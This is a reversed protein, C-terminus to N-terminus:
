PTYTGNAYRMTSDAGCILPVRNADTVVTGHPYRIRVADDFPDSALYNCPQGPVFSNTGITIAPTSAWRNVQLGQTIVDRSATVDQGAQIDVTARINRAAFVDRAIVDHGAVLDLGAGVSGDATINGVAHINGGARINQTTTVNAATLAAPVNMNGNQDVALAVWASGNFTFARSLGTVMRVDGALNGSSPLGAYTAVPEKWQSPSSWVGSGGCTLIVRTASDIAMGAEAVGAANLCSSGMTVLAAGGMRVPTNMRNLEPRGPVANRYLFDAGFQDPGDHFLNSALRGGDGAGGNLAATGGCTASRFSTTSSSWTSGRATATARISIYGGGPGANAAVVALIGDPIQQGGRTVALADFRDPNGAPDPRRILVCPTQGYINETAFGAPLFRGAVLQSVGVAVLSGAAPLAAQLSASNAAIYKQGAAAVQSQHHSAQQGKMDELSTEVMAALGLLLVAGIALAGLIELLAVGQQRPHRAVARRPMKTPIKTM